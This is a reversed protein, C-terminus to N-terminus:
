ARVQNALRDYVRFMAQNGNSGEGHARAELYLNTALAAGPLPVAWEFAAALALRLDKLQLDIRFGASDDGEIMQPALHEMMWSGASGGQLVQRMLKLDVGGARALAMAECIAQINMACVIQNCLKVTQGMGPGGLYTITKGMAQFVPLVREFAEREGGVMISLTGERAGKQGGSVPADLCAVGRQGFHEALRRSVVPSITSMDIVVAGAAVAEEAGEPGLLAEEVHPSDPLMTIIVEAGSAAERASGAPIAGDAAAEQVAETRLDFAKVSFGAKLLNRVMPLGMTGLGIFGITKPQQM